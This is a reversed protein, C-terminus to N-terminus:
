VGDQEEANRDIPSHAKVSEDAGVTHDFGPDTAWGFTIHGSASVSVKAIRASLGRDAALAGNLLYRAMTDRRTSDTEDHLAEHVIAEAKDLLQERAEAQERVLVPSTRVFMRLRHPSVKLREAAATVNGRHLWLATRCEEVDLPMEHPRERWGFYPLPLLNRPYSTM